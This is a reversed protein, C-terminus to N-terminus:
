LHSKKKEIRKVTKDVRQLHFRLFFFIQSGFQINVQKLNSFIKHNNFNNKKKNDLVIVFCFM